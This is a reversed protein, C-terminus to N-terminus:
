IFWIEQRLRELIPPANNTHGTLNLKQNQANKCFTIQTTTAPQRKTPKSTHINQPQALAQPSYQLPNELTVENPPYSDSTLVGLVSM